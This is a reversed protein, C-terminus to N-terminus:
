RARMYAVLSVAAALLFMAVTVTTPDYGTSIGLAAMGAAGLALLWM